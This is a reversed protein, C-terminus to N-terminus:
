LQIEKCVEIYKVRQRENLQDTLFKEKARYFWSYLVNESGGSLPLRRNELVFLKLDNLHCFWNYETKDKEYDAYQVKIKEVEKKQQKTLKEINKNAVIWWRNLSIEDENDSVSFPFRDNESLFKRLDYLRQEFPKQKGDQQKQEKCESPYEKNLLGFINNNFFLFRKKTDNFMITRVRAVNTKPFHILVYEMISDVTQPLDNDLLFEVISDSITGSKIHRWEKLTYISSKNRRSIADNRCLCPRLQAAELFKHEPLIEKFKAFIKDIHMPKGKQKLIEYVVDSPNREKTVPISILGDVNSFLNFEYSLIDKVVNVIIEFENPDIVYEWCASKSLFEDINLDYKIENNTIHNKFEEMFKEFDFICMLTNQILFSNKWNKKRNSIDFGGFLWFTDRLFYAIIHFAFETSLNCQEKRLYEQIEVSEQNIYTKKSLEIVYAWDDRNQLLNTYKILNDDKQYVIEDKTIEFTKHFTKNRIQRIREYSLDYKKAIEELIKVGYVLNNEKFNQRFINFTNLLIYIERSKDNVLYQELIWYMPFHGNKLYFDVAFTFNNTCHNCFLLKKEFIANEVDFILNALSLLVDREKETLERILASIENIFVQPKEAIITSKVNVCLEDLEKYTKDGAGRMNSKSFSGKREFYRVIQFLNEFEFNACCNATRVSIQKTSRLHELTIYKLNEKLM